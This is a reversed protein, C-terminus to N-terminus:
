TEIRDICFAVPGDDVGLHGIEGLRELMAFAGLDRAAHDIVVVDYATSNPIRDLRMFTIGVVVVVVKHCGSIIRSSFQRRRVM